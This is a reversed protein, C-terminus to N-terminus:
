PGTPKKMRALEAESPRIYAPVMEGAPTLRNRSLLDAAIVAGSSARPAHCTDPAFLAADGLRGTILGRYRLAGSGVFLTPGTIHELFDAPAVVCDEVLAEPLGGCRYLATYVENKRADFMPCVPLAAHPLNMALMALSSFGVVPRGTALVLGKVTALGVRLGTFSGPGLSVGFADISGIELGACELALDVCRLIASSSINVSNVFFEAALNGDDLIAASSATTSTDIVLLKM